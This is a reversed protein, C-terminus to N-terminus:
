SGYEKLEIVIELLLGRTEIILLRTEKILNGIFPFDERPTESALIDEIAEEAENTIENAQVLNQKAQLLSEDITSFDANPFNVKAEELKSEIREIIKELHSIVLDIREIVKGFLNRVVIKRRESIKERYTEGKEERRAQIAERKEALKERLSLIGIFGTSPSATKSELSPTETTAGVPSLSTTLFFVLATVLLFKKM